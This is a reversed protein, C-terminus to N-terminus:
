AANYRAIFLSHQKNCAITAIFPHDTTFTKVPRPMTVACQQRMVVATAAAAESGEENVQLYTHKIRTNYIHQAIYTKNRYIICLYV